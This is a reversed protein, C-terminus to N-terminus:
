KMKVENKGWKKFFRGLMNTNNKIKFQVEGDLEPSCLSRMLLYYNIHVYILVQKNQIPQFIDMYRSTVQTIIKDVM